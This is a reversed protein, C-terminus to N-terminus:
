ITSPCSRGRSGDRQWAVEAREQSRAAYADVDARSFGEFMAILHAGIGRPVFYNDYSTTPDQAYAAADSGIPVRSM